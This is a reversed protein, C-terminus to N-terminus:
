LFFDCLVTVIVSSVERFKTVSLSIHFNDFLRWVFYAKVLLM